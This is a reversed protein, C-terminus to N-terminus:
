GGTPGAFRGASEAAFLVGLVVAGVALGLALQGAAAMLLVLVTRGLAGLGLTSVWGPPADGLVRLRAAIDLRHFALVGVWALSVPLADSEAIWASGLVAASEVVWTAPPVWAAARTTLARRLASLQPDQRGVVRALPGPDALDLLQRQAAVLPRPAGILVLCALASLGALLALVVLLQSPPLLVLGIIVAVAGDGRSVSFPLWVPVPRGPAPPVPPLPPEDVRDLALRVPVPARGWGRATTSASAALHALALLALVGSALGWRPEELTATAVALGIVLAAERGRAATLDLWTGFPGVTRRARAVIGDARDLVVSLLMLLAAGAAGVATGTSVLLGGLLAAALGVVTVSHAGVGINWAISAVWRALAAGGWRDVVGVPAGTAALLRLQREEEESLPPGPEEWPMGPVTVMRVTVGSRVAAVLVLPWAPGDWGQAAAVDAMVRLAGSVADADAADVRLLGRAAHTPSGIAHQASGAGVVVGAVVRLPAAVDAAAGRDPGPPDAGPRLPACLVVTGAAAAVEELTVPSGAVEADLLLVPAPVGEMADAIARVTDAADPRAAVHHTARVEARSPGVLYVDHGRAELVDVWGQVRPTIDTQGVVADLHPATLVVTV